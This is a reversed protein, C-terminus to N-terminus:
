ASSARDHGPLPAWARSGAPRDAALRGAGRTWFLPKIEFQSFGADCALQTLSTRTYPRIHTYDDYFSSTGVTRASPVIVCAYGGPSLIRHIERLAVDPERLHEFLWCCFVGAFEGDRFPIATM